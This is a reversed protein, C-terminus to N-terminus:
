AFALRERISISPTSSASLQDNWLTIHIFRTVWLIYRERVIDVLEQKHKHEISKSQQKKQDKRRQMMEHDIDKKRTQTAERECVDNKRAHQRDHREDIRAETDSETKARRQTLQDKQAQKDM